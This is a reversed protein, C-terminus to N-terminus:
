PQRTRGAIAGILFGAAPVEAGELLISDRVRAGDGVRCGDGIIVPGEFSVGEGIEVGEGVLVPPEV